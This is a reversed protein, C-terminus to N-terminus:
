VNDRWEQVGGRARANSDVGIQKGDACHPSHRGHKSPYLKAKSLRSDAVEVAGDDGRGFRWGGGLTGLNTGCFFSQMCICCMVKTNGGGKIQRERGGGRIERVTLHLKTAIAAM